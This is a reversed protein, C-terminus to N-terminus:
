ERSDESRLISQHLSELTAQLHKDLRTAQAASLGVDREVVDTAANIAQKVALFITGFQREVEHAEVLERRRVRIEDETLVARALANRAYPTLNEPERQAMVADFVDKMRYTPHGGRKGAPAVGAESLVRRLVDRSMSMAAAYVGM